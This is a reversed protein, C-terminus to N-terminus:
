VVGDIGCVVVVRVEYIGDLYKQNLDMIDWIFFFCFFVGLGFNEMDYNLLFDKNVIYCFEFEIFLIIEWGLGDGICWYELYIEELNFNKFDYDGVELVIVEWSDVQFFNCCIIFWDNGLLVISINSCFFKFYVSVVVM